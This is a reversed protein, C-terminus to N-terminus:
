CGGITFQSGGMHVEHKSRGREGFQLIHLCDGVRQQLQDRFPFQVEVKRAQTEKRDGRSAQPVESPVSCLERLKTRSGDGGQAHKTPDTPDPLGDKGSIRSRVVGGTREPRDRDNTKPDISLGRGM